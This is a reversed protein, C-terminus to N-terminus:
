KDYITFLVIGVNSSCSDTLMQQRLEVFYYRFDWVLYLHLSSM